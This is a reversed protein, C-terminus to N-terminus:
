QVVEMDVLLNLTVLEIQAKKIDEASPKLSDLYEEEDIETHPKWKINAM